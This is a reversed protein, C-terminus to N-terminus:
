PSLPLVETAIAAESAGPPLAFAENPRGTGEATLPDVHWVAPDHGVSRVYLAGAVIVVALAGLIWVAM